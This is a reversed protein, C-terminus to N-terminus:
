RISCSARRRAALVRLGVMGRMPSVSSTRESTTAAAVSAAAVSATAKRSDNTPEGVRRGQEDHDDDIGEDRAREARDDSRGPGEEEVVEEEGVRV